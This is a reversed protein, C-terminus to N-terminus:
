GCRPRVPSWTRTTLRTQTRAARAARHPVATLLECLSVCAAAAVLLLLLLLRLWLLLLLVGLPLASALSKDDAAGEPACVDIGEAALLEQVNQAEYYRKKREVEVRRPAQGARQEHAVFVKPELESAGHASDSSFSSSKAGGGGAGHPSAGGSKFSRTGIVATTPSKVVKAPGVGQAWGCTLVVLPQARESM